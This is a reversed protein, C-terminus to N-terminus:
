PKVPDADSPGLVKELAEKLHKKEYPKAMTGQFGHEEYNSLVPDNFYGSCV